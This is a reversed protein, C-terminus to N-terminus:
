DTWRIAHASMPKLTYGPDQWQGGSGASKDIVLADAKLECARRLLTQKCVRPSGPSCTASMSAISRHARVLTRGAEIVEVPHDCEPMPKLQAISDDWAPTDEVRCGAILLVAIAARARM